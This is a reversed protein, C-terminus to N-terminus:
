NDNNVRSEKDIKDDSETTKTKAINETSVSADMTKEFIQQLNFKELKDYNDVVSMGINSKYCEVLILKDYKKLDVSHGHDRGVCEAITRILEPKELANFNRKSVQIAFKFPQQDTEQHFHPGLVRRALKKVEEMTPTVSFTIPSLKQTFRTSKLKSESSEECIREVFSAPEIPHRTKIFVLCECGLEIPKIMEKKSGKTEQMDNLEKKIKEEISLEKGNEEESDENLEDLNFYQEVKESFLNILEKRCQQEKGRNCTAYIGSTNPDIFGSTRFKKNRNGGKTNDGKRKGM